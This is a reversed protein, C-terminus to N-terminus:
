RQLNGEDKSSGPPLFGEGSSPPLFGEDSAFLASRLADIDAVGQRVFEVYSGHHLNGQVESLVQDLFGEASTVHERYDSWPWEEPSKALRARVPNLHIYRAVEAIGEYTPIFAYRYPGQWLHGVHKYKLNFRKASSTGLAEMMKAIGDDRTQQALLHYHNPMLVYAAITVAHRSSAANLKTLFARYDSDEHFVRQKNNGRNYLHYFENTVIPDPRDM